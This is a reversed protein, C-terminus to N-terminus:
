ALFTSYLSAFLMGTIEVYNPVTVLALLLAPQHYLPFYLLRGISYACGVIGALRPSTTLACLM